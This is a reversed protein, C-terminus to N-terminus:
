KVAEDFAKKFAEDDKLRYSESGDILKISATEADYFFTYVSPSKLSIIYDYDSVKSRSIEKYEARGLLKILEHQQETSIAVDVFKEDSNSQIKEISLTGKETSFNSRFIESVTYTKTNMIFFVIGIVFLVSIIGLLVTNKSKM